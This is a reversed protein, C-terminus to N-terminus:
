WNKYIPIVQPCYIHCTTTSCIKSLVAANSELNWQLYIISKLKQTWNYLSFNIQSNKFGNQSLKFLLLLGLIDSGNKGDFPESGSDFIKM